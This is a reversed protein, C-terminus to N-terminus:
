VRVILQKETKTYADLGEIKYKESSKIFIDPTRFSKLIDWLTVKKLIGFAYKFNISSIQLPARWEISQELITRCICVQGSTEKERRYAAQEM